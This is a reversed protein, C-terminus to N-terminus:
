RARTSVDRSSCTRVDVEEDTSSSSRMRSSSEAARDCKSSPSPRSLESTAWCFCSSASSLTRVAASSSASPSAVRSSSTRTLSMLLASASSAPRSSVDAVVTVDVSALTEPVSCSTAASRSYTSRRYVGSSAGRPAFATARLAQHGCRMGLAPRRRRLSSCGPRVCRPLPCCSRRGRSAAQDASRVPLRRVPPRISSSAAFSRVDSSSRASFALSIARTAAIRSTSRAERRVFTSVSATANSFAGSAGSASSSSRSDGTERSADLREVALSSRELSLEFRDGLRECGDRLVGRDLLAEVLEAAPKAVDLLTPRPRMLPRGHTPVAGSRAASERPWARRPRPLGACPRVPARRERQSRVARRRARPPQVLPSRGGLSPLPRGAGRSRGRPGIM